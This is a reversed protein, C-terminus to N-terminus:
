PGLFSNKILIEVGDVFSSTDDLWGSVEETKFQVFDEYDGKQRNDFLRDFHKGLKVPLLGPKVFEQHFLARLRGHKATSLDKTLLLASAAYFCAYYLRNVYTNLHDADFLIKAEDIAEHARRLRHSILSRAEENM